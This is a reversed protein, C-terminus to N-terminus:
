SMYRKLMETSTHASHFFFILTQRPEHGLLFCRLVNAAQKSEQQNVKALAKSLHAIEFDLLSFYSLFLSLIIRCSCWNACAITFHYFFKKLKTSRAVTRGVCKMSRKHTWKACSNSCIRIWIIKTHDRWEEDAEERERQIEKSRSFSCLFRHNSVLNLINRQLCDIRRCRHFSFCKFM